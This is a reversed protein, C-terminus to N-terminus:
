SGLATSAVNLESPPRICVARSVRKPAGLVLRGMGSASVSWRMSWASDGCRGFRLGLSSGTRCYRCGCKGPKWSWEADTPDATRVRCHTTVVSFREWRAEQRICDPTNERRKRGTEANTPDATRVRCHTTVVSFVKGSRKRGSVIPRTREGSGVRKRTRVASGVVGM